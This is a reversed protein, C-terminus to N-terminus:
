SAKRRTKKMVKPAPALAEIGEGIVLLDAITLIRRLSGKKPVKGLKAAVQARAEKIAGTWVDVCENATDKSDEDDEKAKAAEEAAKLIIGSLLDGQVGAQALLAMVTALSLRLDRAVMLAPLQEVAGSFSLTMKGSVPYTGPDIIVKKHADLLEAALALLSQPQTLM